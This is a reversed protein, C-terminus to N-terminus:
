LDGFADQLGLIKGQRLEEMSAFLSSVQDIDMLIELTELRAANREDAAAEAITPFWQGLAKQKARSMRKSIAM